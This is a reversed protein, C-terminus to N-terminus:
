NGIVGGRVSSPNHPLLLGKEIAATFETDPEIGITWDQNHSTNERFPLLPPSRACRSSQGQRVLKEHRSLRLSWPIAVTFFFPKLATISTPNM